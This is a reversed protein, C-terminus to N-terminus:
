AAWHMNPRFDGPFNTQLWTQYSDLIMQVMVDIIKVYGTDAAVPRPAKEVGTVKADMDKRDKKISEPSQRIFLERQVVNGKGGPM